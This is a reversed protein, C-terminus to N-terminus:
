LASAPHTVVTHVTSLHAHLCSYRYAPHSDRGGFAWPNGPFTRGGPTLRIRLRPRFAYDISFLNITGTGGMPAM